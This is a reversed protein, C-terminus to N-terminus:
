KFRIRVVKSMDILEVGSDLIRKGDPLRIFNKFEWVGGAKWTEIFESYHVTPLNKFVEDVGNFSLWISTYEFEEANMIM